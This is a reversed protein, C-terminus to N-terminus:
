SYSGGLYLSAMQEHNRLIDTPGELVIHGSEMVSCRDALGFAVDPNQEILVMTMGGDKIRRLVDLIQAVVLPALGMSPEDLLLLRPRSMLARGIALMQQEGGSLSAAAMGSRERLIPFLEYVEAVGADVAKRGHSAFTVHGGLLLNDHVSMPGLVQRGQFVQSLGRRVVDHAPRGVISTGDFDISGARPRLFGSVARLLTTKGAGNPGLVGLCTGREVALSLGFLVQVSGYGADLKDIKLM